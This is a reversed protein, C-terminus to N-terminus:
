VNAHKGAHLAARTWRGHLGNPLPIYVADLDPDDILGQYSDDVRAIGHEAAFARARSAARAAVAAM